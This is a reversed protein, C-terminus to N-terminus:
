LQIPYIVHIVGGRELATYHPNFQSPQSLHRRVFYACIKALQTCHSNQPSSFYVNELLQGSPLDREDKLCHNMFLSEATRSQEGIILAHERPIGAEARIYAQNMEDHDMGEPLNLQSFVQASVMEDMYIDLIRLFRIFVPEWPNHWRRQGETDSQQAAAFQQKGVYAVLLRLEQEVLLGILHDLLDIRTTKPLSAFYGRGQLIHGPNLEKPADNHGLPEAIFNNCITSFGEGLKAWQDSRVLLGVCVHHPQNPDNLSTGTNGSEALYILYMVDKQLAILLSIYLVTSASVLYGIM